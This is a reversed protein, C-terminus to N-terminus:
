PMAIPEGFVVSDGRELPQTAVTDPEGGSVGVNQTAKVALVTLLIVLGLIIAPALITRAHAAKQHISVSM